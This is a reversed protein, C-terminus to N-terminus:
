SLGDNTRMIVDCLVLLLHISNRYDITMLQTYIHTHSLSLALSLSHTYLFTILNNPM